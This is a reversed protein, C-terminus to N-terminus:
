ESRLLVSVVSRINSSSNFCGSTGASHASVSPFYEVKEGILHNKPMPNGLEDISYVSEPLNLSLRLKEMTEPVVPHLMILINKLIYFSSYLADKREDLDHRDDHPKYQNFLGNIICGPSDM